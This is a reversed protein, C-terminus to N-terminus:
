EEALYLTWLLRDLCRRGCAEPALRWGGARHLHLGGEELDGGPNLTGSAGSPPLLFLLVCSGSTMCKQMRPTAWFTPVHSSWAYPAPSCLGPSLQAGWIVALNWPVIQRWWLQLTCVRM